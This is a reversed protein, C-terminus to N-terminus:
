GKVINKKRIVKSFIQQVNNRLEPDDWAIVWSHVQHKQMGATTAIGKQDLTSCVDRREMGRALCSAIMEDRERHRARRRVEKGGGAVREAKRSDVLQKWVVFRREEGAATLEEVLHCWDYMQCDELGFSVEVDNHVSPGLASVMLIRETWAEDKGLRRIRGDSDAECVEVYEHLLIEMFQALKGYFWDRYTIPRAGHARQFSEFSAEKLTWHMASALAQVARRDGLRAEHARRYLGAKTPGQGPKLSPDHIPCFNFDEFDPDACLDVWLDASM